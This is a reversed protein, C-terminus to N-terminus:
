KRKRTKRKAQGSHSPCFSQVGKSTIITACTGAAKALDALDALRIRVIKAVSRKKTGSKKGHKGLDGVDGVDSMGASRRSIFKPRGNALKIYPQGKSTYYIKRAM